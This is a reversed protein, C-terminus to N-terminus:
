AALARRERPMAYLAARGCKPCRSEVLWIGEAPEGFHRRYLANTEAWADQLNAADEEGRMGFYPFHHLIQGFIAQCDEAYAQTDLIHYHWFKDVEGSPVIALDPYARTLALFKVYEAHVAGTHVASWGEGEEPDQLKLKLLTFDLAAIDDTRFGKPIAIMAGAHATAEVIDVTILSSLFV